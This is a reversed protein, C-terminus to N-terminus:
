PFCMRSDKTTALLKNNLMTLEHNDLREHLVIELEHKSAALESYVKALETHSEELENGADTVEHWAHDECKIYTLEAVAM